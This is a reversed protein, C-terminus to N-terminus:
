RYGQEAAVPASRFVNRLKRLVTVVTSISKLVCKMLFLQGSPVTPYFVGGRLNAIKTDSNEKPPVYTLLEALRPGVSKMIAEPMGPNNGKFTKVASFSLWMATPTKDSHNHYRAHWITGLFVCADGLDGVLPKGLPSYVKPNFGLGLDQIPYPYRHSGPLFFTSGDPGAVDDLLVAVALAGAGDQHMVLPKSGKESRRIVIEWLFFDEEGYVTKLLADILPHTVLKELVADLKASQGQPNLQMTIEPTKFLASKQSSKKLEELTMAPKELLKFCEERLVKVDEPSLLKGPFIVGNQSLDNLQRECNQQIDHM